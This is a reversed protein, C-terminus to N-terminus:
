RVRCKTNRGRRVGRDNRPSSQQRRRSQASPRTSPPRRRMRSQRRSDRGGRRRKGSGCAMTVSAHRRRAEHEDYEHRRVVLLRVDFSAHRRQPLLVVRALQVLDDHDGVVATVVGGRDSGRAAGGHQVPVLGGGSPLAPRQSPRDVLQKRGTGVDVGHHHHIGVRHGLRVEHTSERRLQSVACVGHLALVERQGSPSPARDSSRDAEINSNWRTRKAPRAASPRGQWRTPFPMANLRRSSSACLQSANVLASSRSHDASRRSAPTRGTNAASACSRAGMALPPAAARVCRMRHSPPRSWTIRVRTGLSRRALPVRRSTRARRPPPAAPAAARGGRQRIADDAAVVAATSQNM